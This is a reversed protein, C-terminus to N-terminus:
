YEKKTNKKAKKGIYCRLYQEVDKMERGLVKGVLGYGSSDSFDRAWVGRSSKM